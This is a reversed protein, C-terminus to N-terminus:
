VNPGGIPTAYGGAISSRWYGNARLWAVCESVLFLNGATTREAVPMGESIFVFVKSKGYHIERQLEARTVPKEDVHVYRPHSDLRV